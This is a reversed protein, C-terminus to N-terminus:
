LNKHLKDISEMIAGMTKIKFLDSVPQGTPNEHFYSGMKEDYNFGIECLSQQLDEPLEKKGTKKIYYDTPYIKVHVDNLSTQVVFLDHPQHAIWQGKSYLSIGSNELSSIGDLNIGFLYNIMQRIEKGTPPSDFKNLYWDMTEKPTLEIGYDAKVYPYLIKTLLDIGFVQNVISCIDKTEVPRELSHLYQDMMETKTMAELIGASDKMISM